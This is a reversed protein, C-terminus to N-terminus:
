EESDEQEEDDDDEQEPDLLLQQKDLRHQIKEGKKIMRNVWKAEQSRYMISLVRMAMLSALSAFNSTKEFGNMGDFVEKVDSEESRFGSPLLGMAGAAGAM